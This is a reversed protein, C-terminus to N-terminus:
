RGMAQSFSHKLVAHNTLVITPSCIKVAHNIRTYQESIMSPIKSPM